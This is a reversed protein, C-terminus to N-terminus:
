MVLSVYIVDQNVKFVVRMVVQKKVIKVFLVMGYFESRFVFLIM